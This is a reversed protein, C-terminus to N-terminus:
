KFIWPEVSLFLSNLNGASCTVRYVNWQNGVGVYICVYVCIWL